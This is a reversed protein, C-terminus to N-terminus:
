GFWVPYRTPEAKAPGADSANTGNTGNLASANVLRFNPSFSAYWGPVHSISYGDDRACCKCGLLSSANSLPALSWSVPSLGGMCQNSYCTCKLEARFCVPMLRCDLGQSAEVKAEDPGAAPPAEGVPM